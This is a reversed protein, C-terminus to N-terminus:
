SVPDTEYPRCATGCGRVNRRPLLKSARDKVEQIKFATSWCQSQVCFTFRLSGKRKESLSKVHVMATPSRLRESHATSRYTNNIRVFHRTNCHKIKQGWLDEKEHKKDM